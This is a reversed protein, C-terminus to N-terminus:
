KIEYSFCTFVMTRWLSRKQKHIFAWTFSCKCDWLGLTKHHNEDSCKKSAQQNKLRKKDLVYSRCASYALIQDCISTSYSSRGSTSDRIEATRNCQCIIVTVKLWLTDNKEVIRLNTLCAPFNNKTKTKPLEESQKNFVRRNKHSVLM